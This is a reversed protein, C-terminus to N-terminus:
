GGGVLITRFVPLFKRTRKIVVREGKFVRRFGVPLTKPKLSINLHIVPIRKTTEL